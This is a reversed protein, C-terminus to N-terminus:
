RRTRDLLQGAVKRASRAWRDRRRVPLVGQLAGIVDHADAVARVVGAGEVAPQVFAAVADASPGVVVVVLGLASAAVALGETLAMAEAVPQVRAVVRGEVEPLVVVVGALPGLSDTVTELVVEGDIADGVPVTVVGSGEGGDLGEIRQQTRAGLVVTWGDLELVRRVEDAAPLDADALLVRTSDAM